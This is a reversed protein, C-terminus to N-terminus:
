AHFFGQTCTRGVFVYFLIRFSFISIFMSRMEARLRSEQEISGSGETKAAASVSLMDSHISLNRRASEGENM